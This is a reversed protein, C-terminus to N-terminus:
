QQECVGSIVSGLITIDLDVDGMCYLAGQEDPLLPREQGSYTVSLGELYFPPSFRLARKLEVLLVDLM